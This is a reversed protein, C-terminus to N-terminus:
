GELTVKCAPCMTSTKEVTNGCGSRILKKSMSSGVLLLVVGIATGIPWIFMAILGIGQVLCGLGAFRREDEQIGHRDAESLPGAIM